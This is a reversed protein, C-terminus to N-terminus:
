FGVDISFWFSRSPPYAWIEWSRAAAISGPVQEWEPDMGTYDTMTVLNRGSLNLRIYRAGSWVSNIFPRPLDYSLRAERLKWFTLDELYCKGCKSFASARLDGTTGDLSNPTVQDVSNGNFDYILKTLQATTGGKQHDM